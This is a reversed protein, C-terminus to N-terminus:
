FEEVGEMDVRTIKYKNPATIVLRTYNGSVAVVSILIDDNVKIHSNVGRTLTLSSLEDESELLSKCMDKFDKPDLKKPKLPNKNKKM